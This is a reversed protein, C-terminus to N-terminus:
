PTARTILRFRGIDGGVGMFPFAYSYPGVTGDTGPNNLITSKGAITDYLIVLVNPPFRSANIRLIRTNSGTEKTLTYVNLTDSGHSLPRGEVSFITSKVEPIHVDDFGISNGYINITKRYDEGQVECTCYSHFFNIQASDLGSGDGNQLTLKVYLLSDWLSPAPPTPTTTGGKPKLENIFNQVEKTCGTLMIAVFVVLFGKKM